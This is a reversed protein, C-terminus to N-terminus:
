FAFLGVSIFVISMILLFAGVMLESSFPMLDDQTYAYQPYRKLYTIRPMKSLEGPSCAESGTIKYVTDGVKYEYTYHTYHKLIGRRTRLNKYGKTQTLKGLTFALNEPNRSLLWIRLNYIGPVLLAHGLIMFVYEM